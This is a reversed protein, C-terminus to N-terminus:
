AAVPAAAPIRLVNDPDVGDPLLVCRATLGADLCVSLARHLAKRGADDGDTAFVVVPALARLTAAHVPTFATGQMAVCHTLDALHCAVRDFHGEVVLARGRKVIEPAALDLGYLTAGKDFLPTDPGNLYKPKGNDLVRGAFSLVRGRRDRIPLTVRAWFRPRALKGDAAPKLLGSYELVEAGFGQAELHRLLQWGDRPAFGFGFPDVGTSPFGRNSLYARAGAADATDALLTAVLWEQAAALAEYGAAKHRTEAERATRAADTEASRPVTMGVTPALEDLAELFSSGSFARVFEIADWTQGCSGYCRYIPHGAKTKTHVVFSPSKEAHFPCCAKPAASAGTKGWDVGYRSGLAVLDVRQRLDDIWNQPVM